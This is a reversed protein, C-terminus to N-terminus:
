HRFSSRFVANSRGLVCRRRREVFSYVKCSWLSQLPKNEPLFPMHTVRDDSKIIMLLCYFAFRSGIEFSKGFKDSAEPINNNFYQSRPPHPCTFAVSLSWIIWFNYIQLAKRMVQKHTRYWSRVPTVWFRPSKLVASVQIPPFDLGVFIRDEKICIVSM